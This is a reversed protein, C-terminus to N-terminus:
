LKLKLLNVTSFEPFCSHKILQLYELNDPMYPSIKRPPMQDIKVWFRNGPVPSRFILSQLGKINVSITDQNSYINCTAGTQNTISWQFINDPFNPFNSVFRFNIGNFVPKSWTRIYNCLTGFEQERYDFGHDQEPYIKSTVQVGSEIMYQLFRNVIELPYLRDHGANVNYIPRQMLNEPYLQMGTMPLMGGYGSIAFFGAFPGNMLNATAWCGTAGDSVGALFVKSNDIRYHLTMFRLTQLIRSMGSPDWWRTTASASPSALFLQMSDALPSLMEFAKEGKTNVKTGTGGHLYIILPYSTDAKLHGPTRVGLSYSTNATDYLTEVFIGTRSKKRITEILTDAIEKTISNFCPDFKESPDIFWSSFTQPDISIKKKCQVLTCLLIFLLTISKHNKRRSSKTM